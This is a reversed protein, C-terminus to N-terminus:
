FPMIALDIERRQWKGEFPIQDSLYRALYEESTQIHHM